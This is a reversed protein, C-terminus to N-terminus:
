GDHMYLVPYRQEGRSYSPPLYVLLRRSVGPQPGFLPQSVKVTGVVTHGGGRPYDQWAEDSGAFASDDWNSNMRCAPHHGGAPDAGMDPPQQTRIDVRLC